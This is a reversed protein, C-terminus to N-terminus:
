EVELLDWISDSTRFWPDFDVQTSLMLEDIEYSRKNIDGELNEVLKKIKKRDFDISQVRKVKYRYPVQEGDNNFKWATEEGWTEKTKLKAAASLFDLEKRRVKNTAIMVDINKESRAKAEAIKEDLECALETLDHMIDFILGAPAKAWEEDLSNMELTGNDSSLVVDEEDPNAKSKLHREAIVCLAPPSALAFSLENMMQSIYNRYTFAEKLNM